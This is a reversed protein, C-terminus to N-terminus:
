AQVDLVQKVLDEHEKKHAVSDPYGTQAFYREERAFHEATYSILGDLVRGLVDKGHGAVVGDYLDNVMGVLRKHDNDISAVGVSLKDNWQMLPM